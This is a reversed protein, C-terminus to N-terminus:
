PNMESIIPEFIPQNNLSLDKCDTWTDQLTFDIKHASSKDEDAILNARIYPNNNNTIKALDNPSLNLDVTLEFNLQNGSIQSLKAIEGRVSYIAVDDDAAVQVLPTTPQTVQCTAFPPNLSAPMPSDAPLQTVINSGGTILLEDISSAKRDEPTHEGVKGLPAVNVNPASGAPLATTIYKCETRITYIDFDVIEHKVGQKDEAIIAGRFQPASIALITEDNASLDSYVQLTIRKTGWKDLASRVEDLDVEGGVTYTASSPSNVITRAEGSVVRGGVIINADVNNTDLVNTECSEFPPNTGGQTLGAGTSTGSQPSVTAVIENEIGSRSTSTDAAEPVLLPSERDTDTSTITNIIECRYDRNAVVLINDCAGSERTNFTFGEPLEVENVSFTEGANICEIESTGDTLQTRTTPLDRIIIEIDFPLSNETTDSVLGNPDLVTKSVTLRGENEDPVCSSTSAQATIITGQESVSIENSNFTSAQSPIVDDINTTSLISPINSQAKAYLSINNASFNTM